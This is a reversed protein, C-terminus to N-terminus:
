KAKEAKLEAANLMDAMGCGAEKVPLIVKKNPCVIAATEAMFRVGCFIIIDAKTESAQISLALSDGTLDAIDQVEPVQYNHALIIANKEQALARIEGALNENSM